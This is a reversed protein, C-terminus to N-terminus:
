PVIWVARDQIKQVMTGAVRGMFQSASMGRKGIVLTGFDGKHLEEVIANAPSLRKEIQRFQVQSDTFGADKLMNMAQVQFDTLCRQDANEMAQKLNDTEMDGLDMECFDGFRPKVHLLEIKPEKTESLIFVAHDLARLSNVSGDVAILVHDSAVMGDVLWVPIQKAHAVLNTTVSGVFFEQFASIGRRGILITDYRGAEAMQIIDDAVGAERPATKTEIREAGIGTETLRTKCNELLELSAQHNKQRLAELQSRAKPKSRAEEVLYQSIMPQVHFLVFDMNKVLGGTRAAYKIAQKAHVSQDVAILIKRRM